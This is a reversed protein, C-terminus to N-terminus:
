VFIEKTFWRGILSQLVNNKNTNPFSLVCTVHLEHSARLAKLSKCAVRIRENGLAFYLQKYFVLAGRGWMYLILKVKSRSRSVQIDILTM